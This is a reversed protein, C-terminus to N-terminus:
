PKINLIIASYGAILNHDGERKEPVTNISVVTAEGDMRRRCAANVAESFCFHGWSDPVVEDWIRIKTKESRYMYSGDDTDLKRPLGSLIYTQSVHDPFFMSRCGERMLSKIKEVRDCRSKYRDLHNEMVLKLNFTSYNIKINSSCEIISKQGDM